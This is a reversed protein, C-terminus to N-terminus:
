LGEPSMCVRILPWCLVALVPLRGEYRYALVTLGIIIDPHAFESATSPVDKGVFPIALKLRSRPTHPDLKQQKQMESMSLLGFSVRDIKQLCHPLFTNLWEETLNILQMAKTTLENLKLKLNLLAHLRLQAYAATGKAPSTYQVGRIKGAIGSSPAAEPAEVSSAGSAKRARALAGQNRTASTVLPDASLEASMEAEQAAVAEEVAEGWDLGILPTYDHTIYALMHESQLGSVHNAELWLLMWQAIPLMMSRKYWEENLLTLHPSRQLTHESYGQEIVGNLQAFSISRSRVLDILPSDLACV